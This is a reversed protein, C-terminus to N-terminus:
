FSAMLILGLGILLRRIFHLFVCSSFPSTPTLPTLVLFYRPTGPASLCPDQGLLCPGALVKVESKYDGSSHCFLNTKLWETQSAKYHCGYSVLVVRFNKLPIVNNLIKILTECKKNIRSM